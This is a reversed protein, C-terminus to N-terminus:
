VGGPDTILRMIGDPDTVPATDRLVRYDAATYWGSGHVVIDHGVPVLDRDIANCVGTLAMLLSWERLEGLDDLARFGVAALRDRLQPYRDRCERASVVIGDGGHTRIIRTMEPATAPRHTYFTRDLV